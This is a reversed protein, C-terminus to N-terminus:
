RKIITASSIMKEVADKTLPDLHIETGSMKEFNEVAMSLTYSIAKLTVGTMAVAVQEEAGDATNNPNHQISFTLIGQAGNFNISLTDTYVVRFDSSRTNNKDIFSVPM